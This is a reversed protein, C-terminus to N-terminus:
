NRLILEKKKMNNQLINILRLIIFVAEFFVEEEKRIKVNLYLDIIADDISDFKKKVPASM